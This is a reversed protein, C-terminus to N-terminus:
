WKSMETQTPAKQMPSLWIEEKKDKILLTALIRM